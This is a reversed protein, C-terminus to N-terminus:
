YKDDRDSKLPLSLFTYDKIRTIDLTDEETKEEHHTSQTSLFEKLGLIVFTNRGINEEQLEM